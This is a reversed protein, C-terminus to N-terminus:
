EPVAAFRHIPSVELLKHWELPVAVQVEARNDMFAKLHPMLATVHIFYQSGDVAKAGVPELIFALAPIPV